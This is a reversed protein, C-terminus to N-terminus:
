RRVFGARIYANVAPAAYADNWTHLPRERVTELFAELTAGGGLSAHYGGVTREPDIWGPNATDGVGGGWEYQINGVYEVREDSTIGHFSGDHLRHAVINGDATFDGEGLETMELGWIATTRPWDGNTPDMRRGELIVNDRAIAFTGARLPTGSYGMQLSIANQVFLNDEYLGGPRGHVGHSSGRTVINRRVVVRNGVNTVDLYMNHNYMNAGAGSVEENWGNHDFVNDEIVLGDVGSAFIGSPRDSNTTSSNPTWTDLIISRHLRFDRYVAREYSQVVIGTYRLVCDEILINNGGGVFRLVTGAARAFMPHSPDSRYSVIELGVLAFYNRTRANHDILNSAVELRPRGGSDGYYSVVLPHTADRGSKFDDLSPDRWTDGRRLLLFDYQGDRVLAAGRELTRVPRAPSLGDNADNGSASVYVVRSTADPTFVSWGSGTPWMPDPDPDPDPMGADAGPDTAGEGTSVRIELISNWENATNGDGVLRLYRGRAPAIPIAEYDTSTGGSTGSAIEEFSAGDGSVLVRYRARRVDGRYWAVEVACFDVEAGYDLQIWSGAGLHSWRTAPDGDLVNAPVNGDHGIASISAPASRMCVEPESASVEVENISSWANESNGNVTIRVYRAVRAEFAIAQLANTTGSSTGSYLRAFTTGDTSTSVEFASTRQDGRYWAIGLGCVNAVDGLDLTLWSGAGLHSWRTALDGDLVNAPANGDHGIATVAAVATPECGTVAEFSRQNVAEECAALALACCLATGYGRLGMRTNM